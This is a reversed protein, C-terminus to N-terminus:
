KKVQIYIYPYISHVTGHRRSLRRTRHLPVSGIGKYGYEFAKVYGILDAEMCVRREEENWREREREREGTKSSSILERRKNQIEANNIFQDIKLRSTVAPLAGTWM